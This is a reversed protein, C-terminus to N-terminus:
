VGQIIGNMSWEINVKCTKSKVVFPLQMYSVPVEDNYTILVAGFIAPGNDVSAASINDWHMETQSEDLYTQNISYMDYEDDNYKDSFGYTEEWYDAYFNEDLRPIVREDASIGAYYPGVNADYENILYASLEPTGSLSRPEPYEMNEVKYTGMDQSVKMIEDTAEANASVNDCKVKFNYYNLDDVKYNYAVYNYDKKVYCGRPCDYDSFIYASAPINKLSEYTIESTMKSVDNVTSMKTHYLSTLFIMGDEKIDDFKTNFKDITDLENESFRRVLWVKFEKGKSNDYVVKNMGLKYLFSKFVRTKRIM